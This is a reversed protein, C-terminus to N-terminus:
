LRGHRFEVEEGQGQCGPHAAQLGLIAAEVLAMGQQGMDAIGNLLWAAIEDVAVASIKIDPQADVVQGAFFVPYQTKRSPINEPLIYFGIYQRAKAGRVAIDDAIVTGIHINLRALPTKVGAHVYTFDDGQRAQIRARTDSKRNAGTEQLVFDPNM